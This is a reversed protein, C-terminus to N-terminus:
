APAQAPNLFLDAIGLVNEAAGKLLNDGSCWLSLGNPWVPDRRLRGVAVGLQGATEVPTPYSGSVAVGPFGNYCDTLAGQPLPKELEAWVALSHGRLVPVRVCTASLPLDALGLIKRTEAIVKDEEETFGSETFSGIQPIVNGALPRPFFGSTKIRGNGMTKAEQLFGDRARRGAGSAAQYSAAVVRRLGYKALPALAMVLVVTTCNPSAILKPPNGKINNGNIEPVILPVDPNLRFAASEDIIVASTGFFKKLHGRSWDTEALSILCDFERRKNNLFDSFGRVPLSGNRFRVRGTGKPDTSILTLDTAWRKKALLALLEEGVLGRPGIIGLRPNPNAAPKKTAAM